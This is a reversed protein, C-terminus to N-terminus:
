PVAGISCVGRPGTGMGACLDFGARAPAIGPVRMRREPWSRTRSVKVVSYEFSDLYFTDTSVFPYLTSFFYM